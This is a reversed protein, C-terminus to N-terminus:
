QGTALQEICYETDIDGLSYGTLAELATKNMNIPHASWKMQLVDMAYGDALLLLTHCTHCM